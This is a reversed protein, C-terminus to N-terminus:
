RFAPGGPIGNGRERRREVRRKLRPGPRQQAEVEAGRREAEFSFWGDWAGIDLLKKGRLDEPIPFQAYRRKQQAATMFGEIVTGDPLEFTHYWGKEALEKSFDVARRDDITRMAM